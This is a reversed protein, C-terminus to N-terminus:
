AVPTPQPAKRAVRLHDLAVREFAAEVNAGTKASTEFWPWRMARCLDEVAEHSVADPERLDSKNALVVTPIPGAVSAVIEYWQRVDEFTEPRTVDFVLLAGSANLFFADKLLDRFQHSGMIDWVSAGVTRTSGPWAPDAVTFIRSSVKTGLTPIYAGDFTGSVFRRTLSTKGVGSDGALSIKLTVDPHPRAAPTAENAM